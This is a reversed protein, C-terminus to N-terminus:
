FFPDYLMSAFTNGAEDECVAALRSRAYDKPVKLIQIDGDASFNMSGLIEISEAKFYSLSCKKRGVMNNFRIAVNNGPGALNALDAGATIGVPDHSQSILSENIELDFMKMFIQSIKKGNRNYLWTQQKTEKREVHIRCDTAAVVTNSVPGQLQIKLDGMRCQFLPSDGSRLTIESKKSLPTVVIATESVRVVLTSGGAYLKLEGKSLRLEAIAGIKRINVITPNVATFKTGDSCQLQEDALLEAVEGSFLIGVHKGSRLRRCALNLSSLVPVHEALLVRKERDLGSEFEAFHTRAQEPFNTLFNDYDDVAYIFYAVAVNIAVFALTLFIKLYM